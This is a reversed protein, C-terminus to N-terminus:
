NVKKSLVPAISGYGLGSFFKLARENDISVRLGIIVEKAGNDKAWKEFAALLRAAAISGRKSPDIYTLYDGAYKENNFFYYSIFGAIMGVLKGDHEAVFAATMNPNDIAHQSVQELRREDYPLDHFYGEKHMLKGLDIMKRFDEIKECRRVEM